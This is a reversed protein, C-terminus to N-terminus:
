ECRNTAHDHAAHMHPLWVWTCFVVSNFRSRVYVKLFSALMRKLDTRQRCSSKRKRSDAEEPTANEREGISKM